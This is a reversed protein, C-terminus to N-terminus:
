VRVGVEFKRAGRHERFIRPLQQKQVPSGHPSADPKKQDRGFKQLSHHRHSAGLLPSHM